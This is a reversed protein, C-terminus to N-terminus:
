SCATSAAMPRCVRAPMPWTTPRTPRWSESSSRERWRKRPTTSSRWPSERSDGHRGQLEIGTQVPADELLALQQPAPDLSRFLQHALLFQDRYLNGPLGPRDNGRQDGYVQPGGFAAGERSSGGLRLNVHAGTLVIQYPSAAPDGCILVRMSHIGAWKTFYEDPIRNRGEASLGAYMLDTLLRRQRRSFGFVVERGGGWVGRNHYQRLPHDYPVCTDARQEADLTGYLERALADVRELTASPSPPVVEYGFLGAGGAVGLGAGVKLATRRNMPMKLFTTM